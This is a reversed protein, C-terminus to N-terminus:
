YLDGDRVVHVNLHEDMGLAEFDKGFEMKVQLSHSDAILQGLDVLEVRADDLDDSALLHLAALNLPPVRGLARLSRRLPHALIIKLVIPM